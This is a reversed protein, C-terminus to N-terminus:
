TISGDGNTLFDQFSKDTQIENVLETLDKTVSVLSQTIIRECRKWFRTYFFVAGLVESVKRKLMQESLWAHKAPDYIKSVYIIALLENIPRGLKSLTNFDIFQAPSMVTLDLVPKYTSLGIRINNFSLTEPITYASHGAMSILKNIPMDELEDISKGSVISIRTISKDLPELESKDVENLDIYQKITLDCFNM